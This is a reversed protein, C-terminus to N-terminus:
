EGSGSPTPAPASASSQADKVQAMVTAKVKDVVKKSEKVLAINQQTIEALDRGKQRAYVNVAGNKIDDLNDFLLNDLIQGAAQRALIKEADKNQTFFTRDVLEQSMDPRTVEIVVYDNPMGVRPIKSTGILM